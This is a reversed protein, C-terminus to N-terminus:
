HRTIVQGCIRSIAYYGATEVLSVKEANRFSPYVSVLVLMYYAIIAPVAAAATAAAALTVRAVVIITFQNCTRKLRTVLHIGLFYCELTQVCVPWVFCVDACCTCFSCDSSWSVRLFLTNVCQFKPGQQIKDHLANLKGRACTWRFNIVALVVFRRRCNRLSRTHFQNEQERFIFASGCFLQVYKDNRLVNKTTLQNFASVSVSADQLAYVAHLRRARACKVCLSVCTCVFTDKNEHFSQLLHKHQRLKLNDM